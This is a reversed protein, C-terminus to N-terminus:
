SKLIKLYEDTAMEAKYASLASTPVIPRPSILTRIIANALSEPDNMAVLTGYQGNKLIERPGTPADTSVVKTGLALAEILVTPLGERTSSLVLVDAKKYWPYPNDTYGLLSVQDEINLERALAELASKEPGDGALVLRAPTKKTVLAFAQLLTPYDKEKSLRGIALLLPEGLSLFLHEVPEQSKKFIDDTIVPNYITVVKEAPLGALAAMQKAAGKSVAVWGDAFRYLVKISMKAILRKLLSITALGNTLSTHEVLVLRTRRAGFARALVAVCNTHYSASLLSQPRLDKLLRRLGFFSSMARSANLYRVTVRSELEASYHGSHLSWVEVTLGRKMFGLALEATVKGIGGDLSPVFMAIDILDPKNSVKGSM